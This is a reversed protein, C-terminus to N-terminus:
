ASSSSSASSVVEVAPGLPHARHLRVPDALDDAHAEGERVLDALDAVVPLGIPSPRSYTNVVRASVIM